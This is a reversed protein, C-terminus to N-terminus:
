STAGSRRIEEATIVYISAPASALSEERRAVSMVVINSLQELSLETLDAARAVTVDAAAVRPLAALLAALALGIARRGIPQLRASGTMAPSRADPGDLKM